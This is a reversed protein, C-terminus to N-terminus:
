PTQLQWLGSIMDSVYLSGNYLMVGWVYTNGAGGPQLRGLERSALNGSLTGSIDLAVVGGNYYAAYLIQRQEDVWFNHTGAGNLHYTAVETANNLDSIDVVHIDGSSASGVIGPGEEGLFLYKKEGTPSHYWWGNHTQGGFRPTGGGGAQPTGLQKILVPNSPSGGARGDGVDLVFVGEDWAFVFALGDRVFTDHIGYYPPIAYTGVPTITGSAAASLDYIVLAPNSPNKATFAYLKGGITALAGTHLSNPSSALFTPSAKNALSYVYIGAGGGGETTFVLWAGDPSVEIDSITGVNPVTLTNVLSPAGSPALAWIKVANGQQGRFGWTGTYAYGNAVWLDSGYREPVNNGGALIGFSGAATATFSVTQGALAAVTAEINVAGPASPLTLNMTAEGTASTVSTAATLAGGGATIAWDVTIAPVGNAYQDLVRVKLPQPLGAGFGGTQGNGGRLELTAPAGPLGTSFFTLPSGAYGQASARVNQAGSSLGLTAVAEAIGAADTVSSSPAVSGGGLQVAWAVTVGAKPAGNVDTVKVQFPALTTGVLQSQGDGAEIALTGADSPDGGGDGGCAAITAALALLRISARSM